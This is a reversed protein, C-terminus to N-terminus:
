KIVLTVAPAGSTLAKISPVVTKLPILALGEDAKRYFEAIGEVLLQQHEAKLEPYISLSLVERAARESEPFAGEKLELCAFAQPKSKRYTSTSHQPSPHGRIGVQGRAAYDPRRKRRVYVFGHHGRRGSERWTGDAFAHHRGYGLRM